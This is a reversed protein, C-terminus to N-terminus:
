VARINDLIALFCLCLWIFYIYSTFLILGFPHYEYTDKLIEYFCEREFKNFLFLFPIILFIIYWYTFLLLFIYQLVEIIM